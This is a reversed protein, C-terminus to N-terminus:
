MRGARQCSPRRRKNKKKRADSMALIRLEIKIEVAIQLRFSRLAARERLDDALRLHM